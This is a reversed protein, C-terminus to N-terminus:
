DPGLTGRVKTEFWERMKEAIGELHEDVGCFTFDDCQVTCVFHRDPHYFIVPCAAGSAFGESESKEAQPCALGHSKEAGRDSVRLSKLRIAPKVMPSKLGM